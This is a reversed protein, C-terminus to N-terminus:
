HYSKVYFGIVTTAIHSCNMAAAEYAINLCDPMQPMHFGPCQDMAMANALVSTFTKTYLYM